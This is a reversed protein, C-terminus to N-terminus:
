RGILRHFADPLFEILDETTMAQGTLDAAALDGALGHLYVAAAVRDPLSAEKAAALLGTLLGALVDGSGGRAMGPNGTLNIGAQGTPQAILTGAGKLVALAGSHWALARASELRSAQIADPSLGLLVAAEGPHPTLVLEGEPRRLKEPAGAFVTLADADLVLQPVPSQLLAEVLTRTQRTRGIGPGALVADFRELEWEAAPDAPEDFPHVMAGPVATAVIAHIARPVRLSVLGVGSRLAARAALVIAGSYGTSGGVLLVHGFDGKHAIRSRRRFVNACLEFRNILELGPLGPAAEVHEQLFGLPWVDLGGIYPLAAPQLLGVKPLGLTLTRDAYVAGGPAEGTDANMGSPLDISLIPVHTGLLNVAEIARAMLGRAPGQTGTGLLGDVVLDFDYSYDALSEWAEPRDIERVPVKHARAKQLALRADGKVRAASGALWVEVEVQQEQLLRAAILADGGNNGCGAILLVRPARLRYLEAMEQVALAVGMGAQEMLEQGSWVGGEITRRDLDRMTQVSVAKM